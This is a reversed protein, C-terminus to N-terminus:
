RIVKIREPFLEDLEVVRVETADKIKCGTTTDFFPCFNCDNHTECFDQILEVLNWIKKIYKEEM